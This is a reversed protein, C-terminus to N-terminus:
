TGFTRRYAAPTTGLRAHFHRRLNVASSLGVRAAITEVPLPTRELLERAADVRQALLWQGPSVGLDAAFRRAFTRPSLRARRALDGVTLPQDLRGAAWDLVAGLSGDREAAPAPRVFQAQGGERRPPMVMHQAIETAYAAGHDNRVIHLCLDLGAATGASTAVDGHDVYLVDPDVTVDPYRRALEETRRWHTTARRGSLLGAEAVLFAASCISVIRAGRRHARRVADIIEGPVDDVQWGPIVVTDASELAELGDNVGITYGGLTPVQGPELACIGFDYRAPMGPRRLGFVETVCALEFPAQPPHVLAVVRIM